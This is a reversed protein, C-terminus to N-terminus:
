KFRQSSMWEQSMQMPEGGHMHEPLLLIGGNAHVKKALMNRGTMRYRGQWGNGSTRYKTMDVSNAAMIANFIGIDTSSGVRCLNNLKIALEDGCHAPHGQEDYIARYKTKVVSIGKPEEPLEDADAETADAATDWEENWREFEPSGEDFPCQDATLGQHYAAAGNTPIGGITPPPDEEFGRAQGPPPKQVLDDPGLDILPISVFTMLQDRVTNWTIPSKIGESQLEKGNILLKCLVPNAVDPVLQFAIEKDEGFKFLSQAADLQELAWRPSDGYIVTGNWHAAILNNQESLTAGMKAAKKAQTPHINMTNEM